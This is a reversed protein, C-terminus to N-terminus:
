AHRLEPTTAVERDRRGDLRGRVLLICLGVWWVLYLLTSLDQLAFATLPPALVLTVGTAVGLWGVLRRHVGDALASVAVCVVHGGLALLSLLYGFVRLSNLAAAADVDLGEKTGLAAAAGAPLGVALTVAVYICGLVLGSRAAWRGLETTRGLAGALHVAVPVLLVFGVSQLYWGSFLAALSGDRYAREIGATGEQLLAGGGTVVLGGLLLAVYSLGLAGATRALTSPAPHSM